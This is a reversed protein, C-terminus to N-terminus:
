DYQEVAGGSREIAELTEIYNFILCSTANMIDRIGKGQAKVANGYRKGKHEFIYSLTKKAYLIDITHGKHEFQSIYTREM